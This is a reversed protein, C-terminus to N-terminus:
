IDDEHFGYYSKSPSTRKLKQAKEVKETEENHSDVEIDSCIESSPRNFILHLVIFACLTLTRVHRKSKSYACAKGSKCRRSFM